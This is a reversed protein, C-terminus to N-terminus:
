RLDAFMFGGTTVTLLLDTGDVTATAGTIQFPLGDLPVAVALESALTAALETAAASMSLGAPTFSDVGLVLGQDSVTVSATGVVQVNEGQVNMTALVLLTGNQGSRLEVGPRGVAAVISDLPVRVDLTAAEATLQSVDGTIADFFALEVEDMTLVARVGAVEPLDVRNQTVVVRPYHGRVVGLLFPFGQISVDPKVAADMEDAVADATKSEALARLGIDAVLLLAIVVVAIVALKRVRM